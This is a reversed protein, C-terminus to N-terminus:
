DGYPAYPYDTLMQYGDETIVIIEEARYGGTADEWAIPELVLVSGNQLVLSEDFEQGLDTGVFPMEAPDVGLGHGLYFHDVWPRIGGNAEVAARTLDAATAGAKTVSLVATMIERWRRFQAQQRASPDQGVCWTRGFDSCYGNYTIAVDTWLV